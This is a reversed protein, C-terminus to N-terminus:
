YNLKVMAQLVTEDFGPEEGGDPAPTGKKLYRNIAYSLEIGAYFQNKESDLVRGLDMLFQPQTIMFFKDKYEPIVGAALFGSFQFDFKSSLYISKGWSLVVQGGVGKKTPDDRLVPAFNFYQMGNIKLPFNFGYFYVPTWNSVHELEFKLEVDRLCKSSYDNGTIKSLSFMPSISGFFDSKDEKGVGRSIDYYFFISGYKWTGYHDITIIEKSYVEESYSKYTNGSLVSLSASYVNSCVLIILITLYRAKM